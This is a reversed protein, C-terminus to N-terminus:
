SGLISSSVRSKPSPCGATYVINLIDMLIKPYGLISSSVRSKPSPCRATYVINLIDMLVKPYGLISLSIRSKPGQYGATYIYVIYIDKLIGASVGSQSKPM